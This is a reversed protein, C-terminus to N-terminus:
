PGRKERAARLPNEGSASGRPLMDQTGLLLGPPGSASRRVQQGAYHRRLTLALTIRGASGVRVGLGTSGKIFIPSDTMTAKSRDLPRPIQPPRTHRRLAPQRRPSSPVRFYRRTCFRPYPFCLSLTCFRPCFYPQTWPRPCPFSLTHLRPCFSPRTCFHPCPFSLTYLRPCFSPRTCFHPCLPFIPRLSSSLFASAIPATM